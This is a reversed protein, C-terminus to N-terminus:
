SIRPGVAPSARRGVPGGRSTSVTFDSLTVGTVPESFTVTYHVYQLNNTSPDNETISLVSLAGVSGVLYTGGSFATPSLPDPPTQTDVIPHAARTDDLDLQLLGNGSVGTVTVVYTTASLVGNLTAANKPTVVAVTGTITPAPRSATPVAPTLVPYFDATSVSSTAVAESFTM